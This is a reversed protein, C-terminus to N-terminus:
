EGRGRKLFEGQQRLAALRGLKEDWPEDPGIDAHQPDQFDLSNQWGPGRGFRLGCAVAIAHLAWGVIFAIAAYLLSRAALSEVHGWNSWGSARWLRFTQALNREDSFCGAADICVLGLFLGGTALAWLRLDIPLREM